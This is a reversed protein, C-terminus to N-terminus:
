APPPRQPDGAVRARLVGAIELHKPMGLDRYMAIAEDLLARARERDGPLNRDLLMWAYWRRVEPRAIMHPMEQAQHLATQFHREAVEWHQGCAAAIGAPLEVLALLFGTMVTDCPPEVTLEYLAAARAREGLVALGEIAATLMEWSGYTRPEGLTPLIGSAEDLIALATGPESYAAFLFRGGSGAGTVPWAVQELELSRDFLTRTEDDWEGGWLRALGLQIYSQLRWPNSYGDGLMVHERVAGLFAAIEGDRLLQYSLADARASYWAGVNGIRAAETEAVRSLELAEGTRGVWGLAIAVFVQLDAKDWLNGAARLWEEGRLDDIAAQWQCWGTDHIVKSRLLAGEVAPDGLQRAIALAGRLAEDAVAYNSMPPPAWGSAVGAMALLLCRETSVNEVLAALGRAAIEVGESIRGAFGLHKGMEYCLRGAAVKDGQAEYISLAENWDDLDESFGHIARIALGRKFRLEARERNPEEPMLSLAEGFLRLADEFASAGMAQDGALALYRATKELDAAAGSQYLHHALDAAHEELRTAYATELAEAVRLHMRQRRPLSMGGLLTQRIQEHAFTIRTDRGEGTAILHAREAEDLADLLADEGLDTLARLLEFTFARGIVSAATLVRRTEEAVRELRRGIVLRVGEPVEVEGVGVDTRWQGNADFLRGEDDLYRYVEQVFFPVGETEMFVIDVLAAPPEQGSLGRLLAAVEDRPLRRLAMREALAGRNLRNMTAALPRAVDLEVDRYTGIVLMPMERLRAALHEVLLLTSDDAWQLDDLVLVMPQVSAARELYDRINNLLFRRGEEPPMVAAPGM